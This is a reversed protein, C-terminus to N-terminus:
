KRVHRLPCVNVCRRRLALSPLPDSGPSCSMFGVPRDHRLLLPTQCMQKKWRAFILLAASTWNKRITWASRPVDSNEKKTKGAFPTTPEKIGQKTEQKSKSTKEVLQTADKRKSNDKGQSNLM